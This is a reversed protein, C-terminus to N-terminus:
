VDQPGTNGAPATAAITTDSLVTFAAGVGGFTVSTAGTFGSGTITVATGGAPPGTNPSLSSVSDTAAGASSALAALGAIQATILGLTCALAGLKRGIDRWFALRRLWQPSARGIASVLAPRMRAAFSSM